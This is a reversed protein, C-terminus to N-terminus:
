VAELSENLARMFARNQQPTGVTVRLCGALSRHVGNLNRILVGRQKLGEFVADAHSVCFLIFNGSSPFATVGRISQLAGFLRRRERKIAGAQEALLATERLVREAVIQTLVNVNYPLRLKELQAVLGPHGVLFGLRLGALGLKSLTRMVSLNSFENLRPLFSSEAFAHYAEDIVVLGPAARIIQALADADFLNGTPNNPYAILVLAPHYEDIAALTQVVDLSFDRNLDVPRYQLGAYAAVLGFMAFSPEVGLLVAGPKAVALALMQILEDSGNGLLIESDAAIGMTERLQAKLRAAASDPYRNIAADRVLYGIEERLALPLEFPNEMADLKILGSADHVRYPALARIEERIVHEPSEPM